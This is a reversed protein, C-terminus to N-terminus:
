LVADDKPVDIGAMALLRLANSTTVPGPRLTYDFRMEGDEFVDTFHVNHVQPLEGELASLGIDHTAVIGLAGRSLLHMLVSRAGTNRARANTGRLLEDLLFLVPPGEELGNVVMRLKGLEAHFYSAGRQLSDDIRMSARLRVPSLTLASACVPGGAQALAVNLGLARLLTSKGAMNSGTLVLLSGPGELALDNAVRADPPLLPHVLGQVTVGHGAEVLKPYITSPDGHRLTALSCLMEVEGVAEFWGECSPGVERVFSEIRELCLLDWLLVVNFFVYVLGQTRFQAFSEYRALRRMHVSPAQGAIELSKKLEQLHPAHFPEREILRLLGEYSQAFGSRATILDLAHHTSARFHWILAGQVLIPIWALKSPVVNLAGLLFALGTCSLLVWMTPKLWPRQAFLSPLRVFVMFPAHDLKQNRVQGLRALLELEERFQMHSSLEEVAKQRAPILAPDLPSGLARALAQEGERTQTVDIRQFLSGPGVLDVDGAYPHDAPLLGAGTSPLTNWRGSVRLIHREHIQARELVERRKSEVKAHFVVAVFFCFFALFGLGAFGLSGRSLGAFLGLAGALFFALRVLSIRNARSELMRARTREAAVRAAHMSARDAISTVIPKM